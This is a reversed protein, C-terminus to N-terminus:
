PVTYEVDLWPVQYLECPGGCQEKQSPPYNWLMLQDPEFDGDTAEAFRVRYQSKNTRLSRAAWDDNVENTVDVYFPIDAAFQEGPRFIVAVEGLKAAPAYASASRTLFTAHELLVAGLEDM